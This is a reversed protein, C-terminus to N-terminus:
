FLRAVGVGIVVGSDESLRYTMDLRVPASYGLGLSVGVEHYGLVPELPGLGSGVGGFTDAWAHAGHVQLTVGRPAAGRWGLLEFPISRLDHEWAVLAYRKALVLRGTRARLSGFPSVGALRGDIGFARTVPLDGSAVGAALRVHV